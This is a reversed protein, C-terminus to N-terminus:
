HERADRNKLFLANQSACDGLWRHLAAIALRNGLIPPTRALGTAQSASLPPAPRPKAWAQVANSYLSKDSIHCGSKPSNYRRM